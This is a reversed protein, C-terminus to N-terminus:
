VNQIPESDPYLMINFKSVYFEIVNPFILYFIVDFLMKMFILSPFAAM